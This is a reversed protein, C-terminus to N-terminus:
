LFEIEVVAVPIIAWFILGPLAINTRVSLVIDLAVVPCAM